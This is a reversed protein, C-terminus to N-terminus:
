RASLTIRFVAFMRGSAATRSARWRLANRLLQASPVGQDRTLLVTTRGVASAAAAVVWSERDGRPEDGVELNLTMGMIERVDITLSVTSDASTDRWGTASQLIDMFLPPPPFVDIDVDVSTWDQFVLERALPSRTFPVPGREATALIQFTISWAAPPANEPLVMWGLYRGFATSREVPLAGLSYSVVGAEATITVTDAGPLSSTDIEAIPTFPGNMSVAAVLFLKPSGVKEPVSVRLQLKGSAFLDIGTSLSPSIAEPQGAASPGALTIYDQWVIQKM